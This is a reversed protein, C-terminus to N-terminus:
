VVVFGEDKKFGEGFFYIVLVGLVGVDVGCNLNCADFEAQSVELAGTCSEVFGFLNEILKVADFRNYVGGEVADIAVVVARFAFERGIVFVGQEVECADLAM